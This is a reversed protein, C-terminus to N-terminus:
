SRVFGAAVGRTPHRLQVDDPVEFACPLGTGWCVEEGEPSLYIIDNVQKQILPVQKLPPPLVLRTISSSAITLSVILATLFAAPLLALNFRKFLSQTNSGDLRKLLHPNLKLDCYTAALLVPILLLCPLAFRLLPSTKLYFAIGVIQTAIVWLYGRLRHHRALRILFVIAILSLIALLSMLQNARHDNFWNLFREIAYAVGTSTSSGYWSTWDHTEEAISQTIELSVSSPIDLCFLASPFLPCGSTFVQTILFPGIILTLAALGDILQKWSNRNKSIYFACSVLLLPLATLKISVAGSALILPVLSISLGTPKREPSRVPTTNTIVLITWPVVGTLFAVPVDPSASIAIETLHPSGLTCLLLIFSFLSLFWDSFHARGQLIYSLGVWGQLIALLLVFGDTVASARSGLVAPNVPAAFAFWASSFGLNTFLLALGPVSGFQNLWQIIGYHYLGTDLWTVPRTSLVALLLAILLYRLLNKQGLSARFQTLDARTPRSLVALGCLGLIIGFGAVALPLALAVFLLTVALIIIGLWVSVVFRDGLRNFANTHLLNLVGLGITCCVILLLTWIVLCYLM